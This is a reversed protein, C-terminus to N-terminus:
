RVYSLLNPDSMIRQQLLYLPTGTVPHAGGPMYNFIGSVLEIKSDNDTIGEVIKSLKSADVNQAFDPAYSAANAVSLNKFTNEDAGRIINAREASNLISNFEGTRATFASQIAKNVPDSTDRHTYAGTTPDTKTVLRDITDNFANQKGTDYNDVVKKNIKGAAVATKVFEDNGLAQANLEEAKFKSSKVFKQMERQQDTMGDTGVTVNDLHSFALDPRSGEKLKSIIRKGFASNANHTLLYNSMEADSIAGRKAKEEMLAIRQPANASPLRSDLESNTLQDLNHLKAYEDSQKKLNEDVAGAVGFRQAIRAARADSADTGTIGRKKFDSWRKSVAQNLGQGGAARYAFKGTGKIGRMPLGKAWNAFKEARGIVASAGAIGFGKAAGMTMWLITIPIAFFAAQGIWVGLGPIANNKGQMVVQSMNENKLTEMIKLSVAIGFTMIPGFFAYNLLKEWWQKAYKENGPFIRGVFGIPSFMILATLMSLRVVFLAALVLLTLALIFVFIIAAILYTWDATAYEEPKLIGAIATFDAINAFIKAGSASAVGTFLNNLFYYMIVNALDIVLRAIPFSFNVLLANLLVNLWVKGIHYRGVQFITSFASFLLMLIFFLNLFDRVMVWIDRVVPKNFLGTPGSMTDPQVVWAFLAGAVAMLWGFFTLIGYLISKFVCEIFDGTLAASACTLSKAPASSDAMSGKTIQGGSGAQAFKYSAYGPVGKCMNGCAEVGGDNSSDKVCSQKLDLPIPKNQADYCTCTRTGYYDMAEDTKKAATLDNYKTLCPDEAAKADLSQFVFLFFAFFWAALLVKRKKNKHKIFRNLKTESFHKEM